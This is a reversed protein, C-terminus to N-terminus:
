KELIKKYANIAKNLSYRGSILNISNDSIKKIDPYNLCRVINKAICTPSNNELIFGTKGDEVIVPILGVSTSLIPTGCAMAELAIAPGTETYSPIVLLKLENLIEPLNSHSIWGTMIINNRFKLIKEEIKDLLPGDGGILFIISKDKKIILPIAEVFNMIGKEKSLRGIYGVINKRKDIPRTCVFYNEIYRPGFMLKKYYRNLNLQHIHQESDVIIKNSLRYVVEEIFKSAYYFIFSYTIKVVQPDSITAIMIIKKRMIKALIMPLLYHVGLFFLITDINKAVKFLYYSMKLQGIVYNLLWIPFAIWFPLNRRLEKEMKFNILNIKKNSIEKEPINGTIVHVTSIHELIEILNFLLNYVHTTKSFPYTIICVKYAREIAKKNM